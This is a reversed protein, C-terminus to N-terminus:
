HKIDQYITFKINTIIKGGVKKVVLKDVSARAPLGGVM